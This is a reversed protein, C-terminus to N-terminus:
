LIYRKRLASGSFVHGFLLDVVGGGDLGELAQLGHPAHRPHVRVGHMGQVDRLLRDVVRHVLREGAVALSDGTSFFGATSTAKPM